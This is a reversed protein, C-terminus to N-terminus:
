QGKKSVTIGDYVLWTMVIDRRESSPTVYHTFAGYPPFILVQGEITKFSMNQNPFVTEGGSEVTNLHLVITAYRLLSTNDDSFACEGDEHVLCMDGPEYRHFEYGSDGSSFQPKFRYEVFKKCLKTIFLHIEADLEKLETTKSINLTKGARNYMGFVNQNRTLLEDTVNSKINELLEKPIANKISFIM